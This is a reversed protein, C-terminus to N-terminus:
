KLVPWYSNISLIPLPFPAQMNSLAHRASTFKFHQSDDTLLRNYQVTAATRTVGWPLSSDVAWATLCCDPGNLFAEQFEAAPPPFQFLFCGTSVKMLKIDVNQLQFTRMRRSRLDKRCSHSCSLKLETSSFKELQTKTHFCSQNQNPCKQSISGWYASQFHNLHNAVAWVVAATSHHCNWTVLDSPKIWLILSPLPNSNWYSHDRYVPLEYLLFLSTGNFCSLQQRKQQRCCM